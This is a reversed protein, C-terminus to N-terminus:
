ETKNHNELNRNRKDYKKYAWGKKDWNNLIAQIVPNVTDFNIHIDGHHCYHVDFGLDSFTLFIEDKSLM